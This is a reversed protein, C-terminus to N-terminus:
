AKFLRKISYKLKRWIGPGAERKRRCSPCLTVIWGDRNRTGPKGCNECITFSLFEAFEVAGETIDDGGTHYFRAGGFKEKVQTFELQPIERYRKNGDIYSQIFDCLNDLLSYWGDGVECGWCLASETMPLDKQKFLKPYKKFLEVQLKVDM